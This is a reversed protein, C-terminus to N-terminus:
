TGESDETRAYIVGAGNSLFPRRKKGGGESQVEKEREREGNKGEVGSRKEAKNVYLYSVWQTEETSLVERKIRKNM